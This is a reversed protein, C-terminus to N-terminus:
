NVLEDCEEDLKSYPALYVTNVPIFNEDGYIKIKKAISAVVDVPYLVNVRVFLVAYPEKTTYKFKPGNEAWFDSSYVDDKLFQYYDIPKSSRENVPHRQTWKTLSDDEAPKINQIEEQFNIRSCIVCVRPSGEYDKNFPNLIKATTLIIGEEGTWVEDEYKYGTFWEDFLDIEGRGLKNWCSRMEDAMIENLRYERHNNELYTSSYDWNILKERLKKSIPKDIGIIDEEKDDKLGVDVLRTPCNFSAQPVGFVRTYSHMITSWVCTQDEGIGRFATLIVGQLRLMVFAVIVFVILIVLTYGMIGKKKSRNIIKM